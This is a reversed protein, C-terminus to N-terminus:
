PAAVCCMLAALCNSIVRNNVYFLVRFNALAFLDIPKLGSGWPPTSGEGSKFYSVGRIDCWLMLGWPM